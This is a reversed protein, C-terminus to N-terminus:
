QVSAASDPDPSPEPIVVDGLRSPAARPLADIADQMNPDKTQLLQKAVEHKSRLRALDSHYKGEPTVSTNGLMLRMRLQEEDHSAEWIASDGTSAFKKGGRRLRLAEYFHDASHAQKLRRDKSWHTSPVVDEEDDDSQRKAATHKNDHQRWEPGHHFINSGYLSDYQRRAIEMAVSEQEKNKRAVEEPDDEAEDLMKLIDEQSMENAIDSTSLAKAKYEDTEADEDESGSSESSSLVIRRASPVKMVSALKKWDPVVDNVGAKLKQTFKNDRYKKFLDIEFAQKKAAKKTSHTRSIGFIGEGRSTPSPARQQAAAESQDSNSLRDVEESANSQSSGRSSSSRSSDESEAHKEAIGKIGSRKISSSKESSVPASTDGAAVDARRMEEMPLGMDLSGAKGDQHPEPRTSDDAKEKSFSGEDEEHVNTAADVPSHQQQEDEDQVTQEKEASAIQARKKKGKRRFVPESQAKINPEIGEEFLDIKNESGDLNSVYRNFESSHVEDAGEDKQRTNDVSHDEELLQLARQFDQESAQKTLPSNKEHEAYPDSTPADPLLNEDEGQASATMVQVNAQSAHVPSSAHSGDKEIPSMYDASAEQFVGAGVSALADVHQLSHDSGNVDQLAYSTIDLADSVTSDQTEAEQVNAEIEQDMEQSVSNTACSQMSEVTPRSAAKAGAQAAQAAQANASTAANVAAESDRKQLAYRGQSLIRGISAPQISKVSLYPGSAASLENGAEKVVGSWTRRVGTSERQKARVSEASSFRERNQQRVEPGPKKWVGGTDQRVVREREPPMTVTVQPTHIQDVCVTEHPSQAPSATDLVSQSEDITPSVQLASAPRSVTQASGPQSSSAPLVTSRASSPRSSGDTTISARSMASGSRTAQLGPPRLQKSLDVQGDPGLADCMQLIDKPDMDNWEPHASSGIGTDDTCLEQLIKHADMRGWPQWLTELHTPGRKQAFNIASPASEQYEPPPSLEDPPPSLEDSETVSVAQNVTEKGPIDEQESESNGHDSEIQAVSMKHQAVAEQSAHTNSTPRPVSGSRSQLTGYAYGGVRIGAQQKQSPRKGYEYVLASEVDAQMKATGPKSDDSCTSSRELDKSSHSSRTNPRSKAAGMQGGTVLMSSSRSSRETHPRELAVALKGVGVHKRATASGQILTERTVRPGGAAYESDSAPFELSTVSNSFGSNISSTSLLASEEEQIPNSVLVPQRKRTPAKLQENFRPVTKANSSPVPIHKSSLLDAPVDNPMLMLDTLSRAPNLDEPKSTAGQTVNAERTGESDFKLTASPAGTAASIRLFDRDEADPLQLVQATFHVDSPNDIYGTDIRSWDLGQSDSLSNNLNSPPLDRRNTFGRQIKGSKERSRKDMRVPGVDRHQALDNIAGVYLEENMKQARAEHFAKSLAFDKDIAMQVAIQRKSRKSVVQSRWYLSDLDGRMAEAIDQAEQQVWGNEAMMLTWADPQSPADEMKATTSRSSAGSRRDNDEVVAVSISSSPVPSVSRANPGDDVFLPPPSGVSSSPVRSPVANSKRSSVSSLRIVSKVAHVSSRIGVDSSGRRSGLGADDDWSDNHQEDETTQLMKPLHTMDVKASGARSSDAAKGSGEEVGTELIAGLEEDTSGTARTRAQYTRIAESYLSASDRKNRRPRDHTTNPDVNAQHQAEKRQQATASPENFDMELDLDFVGGQFSASIIHDEINRSMQSPDHKVFGQEKQEDFDKLMGPDDHDVDAVHLTELELLKYTSDAGLQQERMLAYQKKLLKEREPYAVDFYPDPQMPERERRGLAETAADYENVMKDYMKDLAVKLSAAVQEQLMEKPDKNESKEQYDWMSDLGRWPVEEEEQVQDQSAEAAGSENKTEAELPKDEEKHSTRAGEEFEDSASKEEAHESSRQALLPKVPGLLAEDDMLDDGQEIARLLGPFDDEEDPLAASSLPRSSASNADRSKHGQRAGSSSTRGDSAEGISEPFWTQEPSLSADESGFFTSMASKFPIPKKGQYTAYKEDYVQSYQRVIDNLEGVLLLKYDRKLTRLTQARRTVQRHREDLVFSRLLPFHTSLNKGTIGMEQQLQEKRLDMREKVPLKELKEQHLKKQKKKERQSVQFSVIRPWAAWVDCYGLLHDRKRVDAWKQYARLKEKGTPLDVDKPLEAGTKASVVVQRWGQFAPLTGCYVNEEYFSSLMLKKIRMRRRAKSSWLKWSDLFHFHGDCVGLSRLGGPNRASGGLPAGHTLWAYLAWRCTARKQRLRNLGGANIVLMYTAIKRMAHLIHVLCRHQWKASVVAAAQKHKVRLRVFDRLAGLICVYRHRIAKSTNKLEAWRSFAHDQAKRMTFAKIKSQTEREEHKERIFKNWAVWMARCLFRWKLSQVEGHDVQRKEDQMRGILHKKYWDLWITLTPEFTPVEQLKKECRMVVSWRYWMIYQIIFKQYRRSEVVCQLKETARSRQDERWILYKHWRHIRMRASWLIKRRLAQVVMVHQRTPLPRGFKWGQGWNYDMGARRFVRKDNCELFLAQQLATERRMCEVFILASEEAWAASNRALARWAALHNNLMAYRLQNEAMAGFHWGKFVQLLARQCFVRTAAKFRQFKRKQREMRWWKQLMTVASPLESQRRVEDLYAALSRDFESEDFDGACQTPDGSLVDASRPGASPDDVSWGHRGRQARSAALAGPIHAPVHVHLRDELAAACEEMYEAYRELEKVKGEDLPAHGRADWSGSGPLGMRGGASPTQLMTVSKPRPPLAFPADDDHAGMSTKPRVEPLRRGVVAGAPKRAARSAADVGWGESFRGARGPRSGPLSASQARGGLMALAEPTVSARGAGMFSAVRALADGGGGHTPPVRELSGLSTRARSPGHEGGRPGGAAAGSLWASGAARADLAGRDRRRVSRPKDHPGASASRRQSAWGSGGAATEGPM